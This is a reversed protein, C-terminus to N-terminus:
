RAGGRGAAAPDAIVELLREIMRYTLGWVTHGEIRFAPLEARVGEHSFSTTARSRGDRFVGLPVWLAAAVERPDISPGLPRDLGFLFPTIVLDLPRGGALAQLEDLRGLLRGHRALDIGV